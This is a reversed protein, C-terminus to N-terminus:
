SKKAQGTRDARAHRCLKGMQAANLIQQPTRLRPKVKTEYFWRHHNEAMSLRALFRGLVLVILLNGNPKWIAM